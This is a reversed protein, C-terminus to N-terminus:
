INSFLLEERQVGKKGIVDCGGSVSTAQLRVHFNSDDRVELINEDECPVKDMDPLSYRSASLIHFFYFSLSLHYKSFNGSIPLSIDLHNPNEWYWQKTHLLKTDM